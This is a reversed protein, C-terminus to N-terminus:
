AARSSANHTRADLRSAISRGFTDWSYRSYSCEIDRSAAELASPDFMYREVAALWAPGDFPDIHMALGQGAEEISSGNSAICPKGFALSESVTMGYGEYHSPFITFACNRYLWTLQGDTVRNVHIISGEGMVPDRQILDTLHDTDWGQSGAFVLPFVPKGHKQRLRRWLLYAFYHNKRAEITGVFLVYRGPEIGELLVPTGEVREAVAKEVFRAPGLQCVQVATDPVPPYGCEEVYRRLDAATNQSICFYHDCSWLIYHLHAAFNKAAGSEAFQRTVIPILDYLLLSVRIDRSKRLEYVTRIKHGEWFVGPLMVSGIEDMDVAVSDVPPVDHVLGTRVGGTSAGIDLVRRFPWRAAIRRFFEYDILGAHVDTYRNARAVARRRWSQRELIRSALCEAFFLGAVATHYVSKGAPLTTPPAASHAPPASAINVVRPSTAGSSASNHILDDVIEHPLTSYARSNEDYTAFVVGSAHHALFYRALEHECRVIGVPQATRHRWSTSLDILIKRQPLLAKSSSKEIHDLL